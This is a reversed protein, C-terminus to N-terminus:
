NTDPGMFKRYAVLAEMYNCFTILRERSDGIRDIENLLNAKEVFDKVSNERGAEYVIRMKLYQVKSQLEETLIKERSRSVRNYIDSVLTLINRIKTTSVRFKNHNDKDLKGIVIEARSVFNTRNIFENEM